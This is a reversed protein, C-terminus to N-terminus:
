KITAPPKGAVNSSWLEEPDFDSSTLSPNPIFRDFRYYELLNGAMDQGILLQLQCSIPEFYWLRRAGLPLAPDAGPPLEQVLEISPEPLEPRQTPGKFAVSGMKADGREQAAVGLEVRGIMKDLGSETISYRGRGRAMIGKPDVRVIRGNMVLDGKGGRTVIKNDNSGEVWVCERGENAEDLWVYHVSRPRLRFNMITTELPALKNGVREQRVLRVTYDPNAAYFARARDVLERASKPAELTPPSIPRGRDNNASVQEGTSPPSSVVATAQKVNADQIPPREAPIASNSNTEVSPDTKAAVRTSQLRENARHEMQENACGAWGWSGCALAFFTRRLRDM